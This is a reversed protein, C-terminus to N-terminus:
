QRRPRISREASTSSPRLLTLQRARPRTTDTADVENGSVSRVFCSARQWRSCGPWDLRRIPARRRRCLRPPAAPAARRHPRDPAAAPPPAAPAAAPAPTPRPRHRRRKQLLRGAGAQRRWTSNVFTTRTRAPKGRSDAVSRWGAASWRINVGAKDRTISSWPMPVPTPRARQRRARQGRARKEPAGVVYKDDKGGRVQGRVLCGVATVEGSQEQPLLSGDRRQAYAPGVTVVGFAFVVVTAGYVNSFTM